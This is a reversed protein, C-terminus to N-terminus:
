PALPIESVLQLNVLLTLRNDVQFFKAARKAGLVKVFKPWYQQRLNLVKADINFSRQTMNDAKADDFTAYHQAYDKILQVREDGIVGQDRSYDRYVPWFAASESDTFQMNHVIIQNKQAQVDSRLLQIDSDTIPKASVEVTQSLASSILLACLGCLMTLVKVLYSRDPQVEHKEGFHRHKLDDGACLHNGCVVLLAVPLFALLVSVQSVTSFCWKQPISLMPVFSSSEKM